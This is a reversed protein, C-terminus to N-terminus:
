VLVAPDRWVILNAHSNHVRNSIARNTEQCCVCAVSSMVTTMQTVGCHWLAGCLALAINDIGIKYAM